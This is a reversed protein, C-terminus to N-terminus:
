GRLAKFFASLTETRTRERAASLRPWEMEDMIFGLILNQLMRAATQPEWVPALQRKNKAQQLVIAIREIVQARCKQNRQLLPQMEELYECRNMIITLVRRSHPDNTIKRLSDQCSKELVGLPDEPADAIIRDLLGEHLKFNEDAIERLLDAKDRFHWYVAGRTVGARQAIEQMSTSVVGKEYFALGAAKMINARTKMAEEKTKRPMLVREFDEKCVNLFTYIGARFSQLGRKFIPFTSPDCCSGGKSKPALRLM